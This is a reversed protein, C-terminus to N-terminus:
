EIRNTKHRLKGLLRSLLGAPPPTRRPGSKTFVLEAHVLSRIFESVDANVVTLDVNCEAALKEAIQSASMGQVVHTWIFASTPDLSYTKGRIPDLLVAGDPTM